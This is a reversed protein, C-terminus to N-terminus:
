MGSMSSSSSAAASSGAAGPAPAAGGQRMAGAGPMAGGGGAAAAVGVPDLSVEFRAIAVRQADAATALYAEEDAVYGALAELVSAFTVRGVRFQALSSDVTATSQVLLGERYLRLTALLSELATRREAVRLRLIEAVADASASEAERAARRESVARSQKSGAWVPIPVSVSAQWMPDFPGGRPMVGLSVTLDPYYDRRALSLEREARAVGLRASALEPSRAEADALAEAPAALVPEPLDRLQAHTEVPADLPKGRMRNLAQVRTAEEALLAIRRQRLRTRELQARLLDSQAGEGAEYRVRAIGESKQWVLELRSLLDLRGRALLLDVWARRVDAEVSLRTRALAAASQDAALSAADARLGRKGPWPFAQSAMVSYFSGEMEGIMLEGFGDNQLGLSLVPDPLAGERPVREREARLRAEAERLEPRAALAEEVLRALEPDVPPGPDAASVPAAALLAGAALAVLGTRALANPRANTDPFPM